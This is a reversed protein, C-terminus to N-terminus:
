ARLAPGVSCPPQKHLRCGGRSACGKQSASQVTALRETRHAESKGGGTVRRELSEMDVGGGVASPARPGGFFGSALVTREAWRRLQTSRQNGASDLPSCACVDDIGLRWGSQM